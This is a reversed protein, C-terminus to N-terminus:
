FSNYRKKCSDRSWFRKVIVSTAASRCSSITNCHPWGNAASTLLQVRLAALLCVVARNVWDSVSPKRWMTRLSSSMERGESPLLSHRSSCVFSTWPQECIVPPSIEVAVYFNRTRYALWWVMQMPWQRYVIDCIIHENKAFHLIYCVICINVKVLRRWIARSNPWTPSSIDLSDHM